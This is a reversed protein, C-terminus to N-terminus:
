GNPVDGPPTDGLAWPADMALRAERAREFLRVRENWFDGLTQWIAVGPLSSTACLMVRGLDHIRPRGTGAFSMLVDEGNRVDSLSAIGLTKALAFMRLLHERTFAYAGILVDVREEAGSVHHFPSGNSSTTGPRYWNGTIGHPVSDEKVLRDFFGAWQAPTLFIDDDVSLFYDGEERDALVFRHGPQTRVAEDVLALRPDRSSIWDGIRVQSNSNSVVAKRVWDNKLAAQVLLEMNQPRNHSLLVVVCSKGPLNVAPAPRRLAAKLRWYGRFLRFADVAFYAKLWWQRRLPLTQLLYKFQTMLFPTRM